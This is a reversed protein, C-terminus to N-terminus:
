KLEGRTKMREVAEDRMEKKFLKETVTMPLDDKFDVYKPVAYRPLHEKCTNIIDEATVKGKYEDRLRVIAMVRESGPINPDPVGVAVAMLVGPHKFLVEDVSTSYVKLGSVNIMDKTRDQIFFYGDEDMYALDGSRLWGDGPLAKATEEPMNWYGKMVGGHRMWVEGVEGDAVEEGTEPEVIKMEMGRIPKGASRLLKPDADGGHDEPPLTTGGGTTETMGYVQFYNCGFQEMSKVLVDETIPSAGYAIYQMSSLDVDESPVMLFFQLIAPVFIAHTTAEAEVIQLGAVPDFERMMITTAGNAMGFQAWGSGAIHFLPM